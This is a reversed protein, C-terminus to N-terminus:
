HTSPPAVVALRLEVTGGEGRSDRWTGRMCSRGVASLQYTCAYDAERQTLVVLPTPTGPLSEGTFVADRTRGMVPGVFHGVVAGRVETLQVKCRKELSTLELDTSDDWTLTWEGTLDALPGANQTGLASLELEPRRHVPMPLEECAPASPAPLVAQVGILTVAVLPYLTKFM